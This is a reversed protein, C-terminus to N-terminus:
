MPGGNRNALLYMERMYVKNGMSGLVTRKLNTEDIVYLGYEDCLEYWVSQNPYHSTRVANINHTKMLKIDRIMEDKSLARGTDCSFEHRNVGKLVIRKGNIKMLGDKIEFTRFGVKCSVTETTNGKDDIMSLVLTYLYPTEASWKYPDEVHESLKFHHVGEQDFSTFTSIPAEWVPQEEKNYLQM